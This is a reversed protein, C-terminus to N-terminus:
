IAKSEFFKEGQFRAQLLGGTGLHVIKRYKVM